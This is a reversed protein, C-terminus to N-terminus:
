RGLKPDPACGGITRWGPETRGIIGAKDDRSIREYEREQNWKGVRKMNRINAQKMNGTGSGRESVQVGIGTGNWKADCEEHEIETEM